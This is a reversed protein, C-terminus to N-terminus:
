HHHGPQMKSGVLSLSWTVGQLGGTVIVMNHRPFRLPPASTVRYSRGRSKAGDPNTPTEGGPYTPDRREEGRREELREGAGGGAPTVQLYRIKPPPTKEMQDWRMEEVWGFMWTSSFCPLNEETQDWRMEEVWGFMWTSSFRPPNEETQDWRMEEVWGFMWTSSFRPPNEETQDWRMEEVWGFMWTSSFPPPNEGTQDWRM